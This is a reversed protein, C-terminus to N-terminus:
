PLIIFSVVPHGLFFTWKTLNQTKSMPIPTKLPLKEGSFGKTKYFKQTELCFKSFIASKQQFIALNSVDM